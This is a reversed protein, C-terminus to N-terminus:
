EKRGKLWDVYSALAHDNVSEPIEGRYFIKDSAIAYEGIGHMREFNVGRIWDNSLKKLRSARVRSLGLPKLIEILKETALRQMSEPDPAIQFLIPWIKDVQARKTRNLLVCAVTSQWRNPWLIEQLLLHPSPNKIM